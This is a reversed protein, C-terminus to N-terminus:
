LVYVEGKVVACQTNGVFTKAIATISLSDYDVIHAEVILSDGPRVATQLEGEYLKTAVANLAPNELSVEVTNYHLFYALSLISQFMIETQLVGPYIPNTPFHGQFVPDKPDIYRLGSIIRHELNLKEISDLFLFPDRHPLILKIGEM